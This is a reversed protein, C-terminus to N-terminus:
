QGSDPWDIEREEGSPLLQLFRDPDDGPQWSGLSCRVECGFREVIERACDIDRPWPTSHSDFWLSTFGDAAQEILLIPVTQGDYYGVTRWKRKGVRSLSPAELRETLWQDLVDLSAEALYIEIDPYREM